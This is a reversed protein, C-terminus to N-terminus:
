QDSIKSSKRIPIYVVIFIHGFFKKASISNQLISGQVTRLNACVGFASSVTGFVRVVFCADVIAADFLSQNGLPKRKVSAAVLFNVWHL